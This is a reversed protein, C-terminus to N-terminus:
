VANSPVNEARQVVQSSRRWGVEAMASFSCVQWCALLVFAQAVLQGQCRFWHQFWFYAIFLAYYLLPVKSPIELCVIWELLRWQSGVTSWPVLLPFVSFLFTMRGAEQPNDRMFSIICTCVVQQWVALLYTCILSPAWLCFLGSNPDWDWDPHKFQPRSTHAHTQSLSPPFSVGLFSFSLNLPIPYLIVPTPSMHTTWVTLLTPM